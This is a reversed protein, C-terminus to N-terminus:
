DGKLGSEFKLVENVVNKRCEPCLDKSIDILLTNYQINVEKKGDAIYGFQRYAQEVFTSWNKRIQEISNNNQKLAESVSKLASIQMQVDESAKAKELIFNAEERLKKSDSLVQHVEDDLEYMKDRFEARLSDEPNNGAVIEGKYADITNDKLFRNIAMTSINQIDTIDSHTLKLQNAIDNQSLGKARLDLVESELGYEKIKNVRSIIDVGIFKLKV